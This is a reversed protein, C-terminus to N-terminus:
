NLLSMFLNQMTNHNTYAFVTAKKNLPLWGGKGCVCLEMQISKVGDSYQM